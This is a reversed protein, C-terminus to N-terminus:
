KEVVNSCVEVVDFTKELRVLLCKTSLIHSTRIKLRYMRELCDKESRRNNRRRLTMGM